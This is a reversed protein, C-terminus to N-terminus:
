MEHHLLVMPYVQVEHMDDSTDCVIRSLKIKRIENLQEITFSSPWGSNEYWFRDGLRLDRFQLGILCALTPGVMAGPLPRESIGASWLDIDAPSRYIESYRRVTDNPMWAALDYWTKVPPLGCFKRYAGYGPVGHERGRQMNFSALDMGFRKSPEQFLHNTVEETVSDDMAQAVQNVLGCIYQDCWGGKYLDYPQRLMGNLRQSGIYKHTTSWREITSPLLSHGFRFASTIFADSASPNIKPDYGDFYGDEELVLDYKEMVEKGLVMPLFENYTIHQVIAAMIHRTEQYATEDDWHPNVRTLVEALINHYRTFMTHVVALVVQENVRNDGAHFCFMDQRPRICGDDPENMKLPLLEKLGFDEFIPFMKMQGKQFSRLSKAVEKTSGYVWNADLVSTIMNFSLRPGLKCAYRPGPLSRAFNMCRQMFLSYFRDDDPIWIPLCDEHDQRKCCEPDKNQENKTEATLTIDHDIAQGWAVLMLTAAHDHHGKDGHIATSVLRVPPLPSGDSAARVADVGDPYAPAILKKFTTRTAGWHPNELNTCLGNYERYRKSECEPKKLWYPCYQGVVTKTTDILPLGNVIADPALGYRHAIIRTTELLVKGIAGVENSDLERRHAAPLGFRQRAKTFARNVSGFTICARDGDHGDVSNLANDALDVLSTPGSVILACTEDGLDDSGDLSRESVVPPRPLSENRLGARLRRKASSAGLSSHVLLFGSLILTLGFLRESDAIAECNSDEQFRVGPVRLDAPKGREEGFEGFASFEVRWPRAGGYFDLGQPFKEEDEREDKERM